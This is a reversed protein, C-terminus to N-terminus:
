TSMLLAAPLRPAGRPKSGLLGWASSGRRVELGRNARLGQALAAAAAGDLCNDSTSPPTPPASTSIGFSPVPM